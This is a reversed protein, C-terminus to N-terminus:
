RSAAARSASRASIARVSAPRKVARAASRPPAMATSHADRRGRTDTSRSGLVPPVDIGGSIGLYSRVGATTRGIHVEAGAPVPVPTAFGVPAGDVTVRAYEATLEVRTNVGLKAFVNKLYTKITESGVGLRSAIEKNSCGDAMLCLVEIERKSLPEIIGAM